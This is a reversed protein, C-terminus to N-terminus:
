KNKINYNINLLFVSFKGSVVVLKRNINILTTTLKYNILVLACRLFIILDVGVNDYKFEIKEYFFLFTM